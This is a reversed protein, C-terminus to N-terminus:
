GGPLSGSCGAKAPGIAACGAGSGITGNRGALPFAAPRIAVQLSTGRSPLSSSARWFLIRLIAAFFPVDADFGQPGRGLTPALDCFRLSDMVLQLVRPHMLNLANGCGTFNEYFRPQDPKLWYYSTNDIGRFSLTPGLHHDGEATHNYVVDLIIEIGADHLRAIATRLDGLSGYREQPAFFCLTNYGWYNTLGRKVLHWEDIFAHIPLLELSTVGLQKLHDVIAPSSLARFTGRCEPPVDDRLQTLGKVHAEYLITDEWAIAPRRREPCAARATTAITPYTPADAATAIPSIPRTCCSAAPWSGPM